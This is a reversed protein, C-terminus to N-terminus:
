VSILKLNEPLGLHTVIKSVQKPNFTQGNYEGLDSKIPQLWKGLTYLSINYAHAITSKNCSKYRTIKNM